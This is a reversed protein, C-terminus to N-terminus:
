MQFSTDGVQKTLVNLNYSFTQGQFDNNTDFPMFFDAQFVLFRNPKLEFMLDNGNGQQGFFGSGTPGTVNGLNGSDFPSDFQSFSTGTQIWTSLKTCYPDSACTVLGHQRVNTITLGSESDLVPSGWTGTFNAQFMFPDQGTNRIAFLVARTEGPSIRMTPLTNVQTSKKGIQTFIVSTNRTDFDIADVESSLEGAKVQNNAIKSSTTFYAWTAMSGVALLLAFLLFLRIINKTKKM